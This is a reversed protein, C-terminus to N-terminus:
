FSFLISAYWTHRANTARAQLGPGYYGLLHYHESLDYRFGAGIGTSGHGHKTDPAQHVIEVGLQLDPLVQRTLVWGAMCFNRADDGHQLQCGGGGFTSWDDWDKEFWIPLFLAPHNDGVRAAGSPLFIRPFVAIDWGIERQHLFRYKAALEVNGFGIENAADRPLSYAMPVVATLQLDPLAGYNFDIGSEGTTGDVAKSGNAFLYIEYHQYDTPEPDDTIYPPGAQAPGALLPLAAGVVFACRLALDRIARGILDIGGM